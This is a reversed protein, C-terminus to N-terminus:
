EFALHILDCCHKTFPTTEFFVCHDPNIPLTQDASLWKFCQKDSVQTNIKFSSIPDMFAIALTIKM